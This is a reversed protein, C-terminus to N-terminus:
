KVLRIASVGANAIDMSAQLEVACAVAHVVSAFEVLAGDGMVKIGRGHHKSVMPQVIEACRSKLMALTGAEDCEMLRSFGVVDVALIAALRREM